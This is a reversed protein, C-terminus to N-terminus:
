PMWNRKQTNFVLGELLHKTLRKDLPQNHENLSAMNLWSSNVEQNNTM